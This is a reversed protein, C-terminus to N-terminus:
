LVRVWASSNNWHWISLMSSVSVTVAYYQNSGNTLYIAYSGTPSGSNDVPIGRSNFLIHTSQSIPSQSGAPTTISGYGFTVGPSLNHTGNEVVFQGTTKNYLEVQHTASGTSITLRGQTFDAAARMRALTIQSAITRADGAIRYSQITSNVSTLSFSAMILSIATAAVLEVLSVGRQKHNSKM